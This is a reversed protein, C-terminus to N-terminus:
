FTKGKDYKLQENRKFAEKAAQYFINNIKKERLVELFKETVGGKSAVMEILDKPQKREQKQYLIASSFTKLL